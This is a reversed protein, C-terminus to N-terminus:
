RPSLVSTLEAPLSSSSLLSSKHRSHTLNQEAAAPIQSLQPATQAPLYSTGIQDQPSVVLWQVTTPSVSGPSAKLSRGSGQIDFNPKTNLSCSHKLTLLQEPPLQQFRLVSTEIALWARLDFSAVGAPPPASHAAAISLFDCCDCCDTNPALCECM